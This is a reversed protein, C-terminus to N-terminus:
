PSRTSKSSVAKFKEASLFPAGTRVKEWASLFREISANPDKGFDVGMEQMAQFLRPLDEGRYFGYYSLAPDSRPAVLECGGILGSVPANFDSGLAVGSPSGVALATRQWEEAFARIGRRCEESQPNRAGIPLPEMLYDTPMLGVIGRTARVRDLSFKPIAREATALERLKTHTFLSPQGARDLVAVIERQAQDSAHALDIWVRRKVLEELVTKGFASLGYANLYAGTRSDTTKGMWASIWEIPANLFAAGPMLAVGRGLRDPSLHMFTVIGVKKEDIFIRRDEETDFAGEATEISYVLVRKGAALAARATRPESAVVWGPNEAVFREAGGIQRLLSERVVNRSPDLAQAVSGSFRALVPHAYFSVVVLRLGSPDLSARTMKSQLRDRPSDSRTPEDFRGRVLVPNGDKM